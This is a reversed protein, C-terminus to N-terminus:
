KSAEIVLIGYLKHERLGGNIMVAEMPIELCKIANLLTVFTGMMRSQSKLYALYAARHREPLTTPRYPLVTDNLLAFLSLGAHVLIIRLPTYM